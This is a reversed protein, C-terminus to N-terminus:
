NLEAIAIVYEREPGINRVSSKNCSNRLATIGPDLAVRDREGGGGGRDLEDM